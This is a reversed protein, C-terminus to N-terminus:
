LWLAFQSKALLYTPSLKDCCIFDVCDFRGLSLDTFIGLVLFVLWCGAVFVSARLWILEIDLNGVTRCARCRTKNNKLQQNPTYMWPAHAIRCGRVHDATARDNVTTEDESQIEAHIVTEMIM